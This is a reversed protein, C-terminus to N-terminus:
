GGTPAPRCLYDLWPDRREQLPDVECGGLDYVATVEFGAQHLQRLQEAPDVYYVELSFRHASDRVITWGRERAAALDIARNSKRVEWAYYVDKALDYVRNKRSAASRQPRRRRTALPLAGVSHSSFLFNGDPKLAARVEALIKLRDEHGVADIGNYSFLVFDFPGDVSSLDRADGVVLEVGEHEALLDRARAIMRPSYDLGVYRHVLPGFTYGTRGAGVGLDLMEMEHLREQLLEMVVREAPMLELDTYVEADRDFVAQNTEKSSM